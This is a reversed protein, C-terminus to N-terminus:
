SPSSLREIKADKRLERVFETEMARVKADRVRRQIYPSASKLNSKANTKRALLKFLRVNGRGNSLVGSVEGVKLSYLPHLWETPIRSWDIWGLDWPTKHANKSAKPLPPFTVQAVQEFTKGNKIEDLAKVAEDESRFPISALHLATGIQEAHADYYQSMEVESVTVKDEIERAFVRRMMESRKAAAVRLELQHIEKQYDADKDLGLQLGKQYYLEADILQDLAKARLDPDTAGGHPGQLWFSLEQDTIPTGNVKVLVKDGPALATTNAASSLAPTKTKCGALLLAALAAALVLLPMAFKKHRM